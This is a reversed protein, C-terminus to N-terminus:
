TVTFGSLLRTAAQQLDDLQTRVGQKGIGGENWANGSSEGGVSGYNGDQKRLLLIKERTIAGTDLYARTKVLIADVDVAGLERVDKAWRNILFESPAAQQPYLSDQEKDTLACLAIFLAFLAANGELLLVDWCRILVPLPLSHGFLCMFPDVAFFLLDLGQSQVKRLFKPCLEQMLKELVNVDVMLGKLTASHYHPTLRNLLCVFLAFIAGETLPGDQEGLDGDEAEGCLSSVGEGQERFFLFVLVGAIVNMSQCYSETPNHLCYARLIRRLAAQQADSTLAKPLTRPIDVEIQRLVYDPICTTVAEAQMRYVDRYSTDLARLDERSGGCFQQWLKGRRKTPIGFEYVLQRLTSADGPDGEALRPRLSGPSAESRRDDLMGRRWAKKGEETEAPLGPSNLSLVEEESLVLVWGQTLDEFSKAFWRDSPTTPASGHQFGEKSTGEKHQQDWRRQRRNRGGNRFKVM